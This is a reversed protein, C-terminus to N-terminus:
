SLFADLLEYGDNSVTEIEINLQKEMDEITTDDLLVNENHKLMAESLLLVDGLDRGSLQETIDRGTLLGTVTIKSGFFKNEIPVVDIMDGDLKEALQKIVPYAAFGTALTKRRKPMRNGALSLADEFEYILSACLGVGNEIQPFGDYDAYQPFDIGANLYFEDGLYILNYGREAKFKSQWREVQRVVALSTERDFGSLPALGGRHDSLGVPVISVSEVSSGLAAIDGITRDLEACDNYGPCLVIQANINLGGDALRRLYDTIKGANKNNLMKCRLEPNTTHVSINIRPINYRLLREVDADTMNTMTVYNGQLFSLRFDDDKFYCTDRMGKPLQDIFCFICKNRCSKPEDILLTDFTIGLPLYEENIIEVTRGSLEIAAEEGCSAYMYDLYDNIEIGNIGVIIEGPKIGALEAPSGHEIGAIKAAM